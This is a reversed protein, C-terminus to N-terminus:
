LSLGHKASVLNKRCWEVPASATLSQTLVGAITTGKSLQALMVDDRKKYKVGAAIASLTVGKVEPLQPFCAPALPSIKM